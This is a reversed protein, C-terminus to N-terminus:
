EEELNERASLRARDKLAVVSPPLVNRDTEDDIWCILVDVDEPNHNDKYLSSRMKFEAIAYLGTAEDVLIADPKTVESCDYNILNKLTALDTARCYKYGTYQQLSGFVMYVDTELSPEWAELNEPRFLEFHAPRLRKREWVNQITPAQQAPLAAEDPVLIQIRSTDIIEYLVSDTPFYGLRFLQSLGSLLGNNANYNGDVEIANNNQVTVTIRGPVLLNNTIPTTGLYISYGKRYREIIRATFSM